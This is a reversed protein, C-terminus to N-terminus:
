HILVVTLCADCAHEQCCESFSVQFSRFNSLFHISVRVLTFLALGRKLYFTARKSVMLVKVPDFYSFEPDKLGREM